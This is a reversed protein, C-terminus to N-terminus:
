KHSVLLWSDRGDPEGSLFIYEYYEDTYRIYYVKEEWWYMFGEEIEGAYANQQIEEFNMGARADMFGLDIASDTIILSRPLLEEEIDNDNSYQLWMGQDIQFIVGGFHGNLFGFIACESLDELKEIRALEGQKMQFYKEYVTCTNEDEMRNSEDTQDLKAAISDLYLKKNYFKKMEAYQLTMDKAIQQIVEYERKYDKVEAFANTMEHLINSGKELTFAVKTKTEVEAKQELIRYIFICGLVACSIVCIWLCIKMRRKPFRGKKRMENERKGYGIVISM